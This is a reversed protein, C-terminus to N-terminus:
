TVHLRKVSWMEAGVEQTRVPTDILSQREAMEMLRLAVTVKLPMGFNHKNKLRTVGAPVM